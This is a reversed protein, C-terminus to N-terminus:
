KKNSRGHTEEKGMLWNQILKAAIQPNEDVFEGINQKLKMSHKMRLNLIEESQRLEEDKDMMRMREVAAAKELLTNENDSDELQEKLQQVEKQRQEEERRREEEEKQRQEEEQLLMAEQEAARIRAKRKELLLLLILLLVLVSGAGLAILVPLPLQRRGSADANVPATDESKSSAALTRIVTIKEDAEDQGIGSSSAILRVLDGEPISTDETDITVGVTTNELVGPDVQRQEKTSNYLWQRVASGNSYTDTKQSANGNQNTYRPTDANADAGAVGGANQGGLASQEGTVDESQLLGTKDEENIRDPTTYTTSEQILREMNLTGKVSVAVKGQGYIMELVRRINAAISNEVQSTLSLMSEGSGADSDGGERGIETMTEADFVAVNTFNMGRVARAILNKVASAKESTLEKGTDMTIVVSASADTSTEDDLAYKQKGAEAITVKADRVGDFLCIQAGLRDQLEYLTYKEKDSETAMIGANDRYMDYTFGSRPYGASVMKARTQDVTASPVQVTGTQDNYRYEIGDDQLLSVVAQADEKNMRTFLTSYGKDSTLNLVAIGIAALLVTGGVMMLILKRTKEPMNRWSEKINQM